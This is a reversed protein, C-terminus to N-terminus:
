QLAEAKWNTFHEKALRMFLILINCLLHYRIYEYFIITLADPPCVSITYGCIQGSNCCRITDMM